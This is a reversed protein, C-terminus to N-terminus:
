IHILSLRSIFNGVNVTLPDKDFWGTRTAAATGIGTSMNTRYRFRVTLSTSAGMNIDRYAMQDWQSAYGPFKHNTGIGGGTTGGALSSSEYALTRANFANKTIPDIFSLDGDRRLGCWLSNSGGLAAWTVGGGSTSGNDRHWVGIVGFTRKHATGQNIVYNVNNGIDLAWWPRNDDSLTQGGTGNEIGRNPWWGFLSDGHAEGINNHVGDNDFGWYGYDAVNTSYVRFAGKGIGWYNTATVKGPVFGVYTTDGVASTRAAAASRMERQLQANMLKTGLNDGFDERAVATNALAAAAGALLLLAVFPKRM